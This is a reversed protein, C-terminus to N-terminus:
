ANGVHHVAVCTVTPNRHLSLRFPPLPLALFQLKERHTQLGEGGKGEGEEKGRPNGPRCTSFSSVRSRNGLETRSGFFSPRSRYVYTYIQTGGM